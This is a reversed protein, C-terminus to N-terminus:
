EAEEGFRNILFIEKHLKMEAVKYELDAKQTKIKEKQLKLDPNEGLLSPEEAFKNQIIELNKNYLDKLRKKRTLRQRAIRYSIIRGSLFSAWKLQLEDFRYGIENQYSNLLALKGSTNSFINFPLSFEIGFEPYEEKQTRLMNEVLDNKTIDWEQETNRWNYSLSLNVEPLVTKLYSIKIKRRIERLSHILKDERNKDVIQLFKITDPSTNENIIQQFMTEYYVNIPTNFQIMSKKCIKQLDAIDKELNDIEELNEILTKIEIINEKNLEELIANERSIIKLKQELIQIMEDAEYWDIIDDLADSLCESKALILEQELRILNISSDIKDATADFDKPFFQKELEIKWREDEEQIKSEELITELDDRTIDNEWNQYAFNVDFLSLSKEIKVEAKEQEYRNLLQQYDSNNNLLSNIQMEFTILGIESASMLSCFM